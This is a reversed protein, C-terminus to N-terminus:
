DLLGNLVLVAEQRPRVVSKLERQAAQLEATAKNREDRYKALKQSIEDASLERNQIAERLERHAAALKSEEADGSRARGFLLVAGPRLDRQLTVVKELKPQLAAWEEDTAGMQERLNDLMRQRMASPDFARREVAPGGGRRGRREPQTGADQALVQVFVGSCAVLVTGLIWRRTM